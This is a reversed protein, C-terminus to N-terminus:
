TPKTSEQPYRANVWQTGLSRNDRLLLHFLKVSDTVLSLLFLPIWYFHLLSLGNM